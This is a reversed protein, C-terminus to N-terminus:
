RREAVEQPAPEKLEMCPQKARKLIKCVQFATEKELGMIRARYLIKGKSKPLPVVAVQGGDLLKAYKQAVQRAATRAPEKTYFAGVQIGWDGKDGGDNRPPEGDDESVVSAVPVAPMATNPTTTKALAPMTKHVDDFASALLTEM